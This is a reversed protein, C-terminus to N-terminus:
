KCPSSGYFDPEIARDKEVLYDGSFARRDSNGEPNETDGPYERCLVTGRFLIKPATFVLMPGKQEYPPAETGPWISQPLEIHFVGTHPNYQMVTSDRYVTAHEDWDRPQPYKDRYVGGLIVGNSPEGDPCFVMVQEDKVPVWYARDEGGRINLLPIPKTPKDEILVRFRCNNKDVEVVPGVRLMQGRTREVESINRITTM